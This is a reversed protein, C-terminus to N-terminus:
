LDKLHPKTFKQFIKDRIIITFVNKIKNFKMNPHFQTLTLEPWRSNDCIRRFFDGFSSFSTLYAYKKEAFSVLIIVM